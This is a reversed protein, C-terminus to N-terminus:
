EEQVTGVALVLATSEALQDQSDSSLYSAAVQQFTITPDNTLLIFYGSRVAGPLRGEVRLLQQYTVGNEATYSGDANEVYAYASFDYGQEALAKLVAEDVDDLSGASLRRCTEAQGQAPSTERIPGMRVEVRDGNRLDAFLNGEASADTLLIPGAQAEILFPDGGISRVFIGTWLGDNGTMGCAALLLLALLCLLWIGLRTKM